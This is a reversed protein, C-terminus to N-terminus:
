KSKIVFFYQLTADHAHAATVKQVRNGSPSVYSIVLHNCALSGM